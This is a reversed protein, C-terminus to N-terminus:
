TLLAVALALSTDKTAYKNFYVDFGKNWSKKIVLGLGLEWSGTNKTKLGYNWVHRGESLLLAFFMFIFFLYLASTMCSTDQTVPRDEKVTNAVKLLKSVGFDAVKMHGSDDRM